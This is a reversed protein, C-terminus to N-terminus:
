RFLPRAIPHLQPGFRNGSPRFCRSKLPHSAISKRGRGVTRQVAPQRTPKAPQRHAMIDDEDEDPWPGRYPRRVHFVPIAHGIAAGLLAGLSGLVLSAAVRGRADTNATAGAAAGLGFGILAGIAAHQGDDDWSPPYASYYGGQCCSRRYLGPYRQALQSSEKAPGKIGKTEAVEACERADPILQCRAAVVSPFNEGAHSNNTQGLSAGPLVGLLLVLAAPTKMILRRIGLAAAGAEAKKKELITSNGRSCRDPAQFLKTLTVAM